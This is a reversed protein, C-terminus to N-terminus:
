KWPVKVQWVFGISDLKSLYPLYNEIKQQQHQGRRATYCKCSGPQERECGIECLLWVIRISNRGFYFPVWKLQHATFLSVDYTACRAISKPIGNLTNLHPPCQTRQGDIPHVVFENVRIDISMSALMWLLRKESFILNFLRRKRTKENVFNGIKSESQIHHRVADMSTHLSHGAHPCKICAHSYRTGSGNSKREAM